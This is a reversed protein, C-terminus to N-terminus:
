TVIKRGAKSVSGLVSTGLYREVEQISRLSHDFHDALFAYALALLLSVAVAVVTYVPTNPIAPREPDPTGAKDIIHITIEKRAREEDTQIRLFDTEMRAYTARATKLQNQIRDYEPLLKALADLKRTLMGIERAVQDLQATLTQVQVDIAKREARLEEIIELKARAIEVYLDILQRYTPSFQGRMRNRDIILDALKKKMKNVIDNNTLVQQPVVIRPEETMEFLEDAIQKLAKQREADEKREPATQYLALARSELDQVHDRTMVKKIIDNELQQDLQQQLAGASALETGLRIKEEEFRRRVIQAGAETGSKLLQELIVIDAPYLVGEPQTTPTRDGAAGLKQALFTSVSDETADLTKEKLEILRARALDSANRFSEAQVQWYRDLYSNALIDAASKAQEGPAFGPGDQQRVTITFVESMGVSEGGPTEVKVCKRFKRIDHPNWRMIDGAATDVSRLESGLQELAKDRESPKVALVAAHAQEWRERLKGNALLAMTRGLVCDSLILEQQTKLFVPLSRDPSVEQITSGMQKPQKLLITVSSEYIPDAKKCAFYTGGTLLLVILLMGALHSFVVRTLERLTKAAIAEPM